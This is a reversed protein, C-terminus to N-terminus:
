DGMTYRDPSLDRVIGIRGPAANFLYAEMCRNRNCAIGVAAPRKPEWSKEPAPMTGVAHWATMLEETDLAVHPFYEEARFVKEAKSIAHPVDKWQGSDGSIQRANTMQHWEARWKFLVVMIAYREANFNTCVSLPRGLAWREVSWNVESRMLPTLWISRAELGEVEVLLTNVKGSSRSNLSRTASVDQDGSVFCTIQAAAVVAKKPDSRIPSIRAEESVAKAGADSRM